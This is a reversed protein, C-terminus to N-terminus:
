GLIRFLFPLLLKDFLSNMSEVVQNCHSYSDLQGAWRWDHYELQLVSLWPSPFIQSPCLKWLPNTKCRSSRLREALSKLIWPFQREPCFFSGRHRNNLFLLEQFAAIHRKLNLVLFDIWCQATRRLRKYVFWFCTCQIWPRHCSFLNRSEIDQGVFFYNKTAEASDPPRFTFVM